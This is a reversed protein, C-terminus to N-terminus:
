SHAPLPWRWFCLLAALFVAALPWPMLYVLGRPTFLGMAGFMSWGIEVFDFSALLDDEIRGDLLRIKVAFAFMTAPVFGVATLMASLPGRLWNPWRATLWLVPLAVTLASLFAGEAIILALLMARDSLAEHRLVFVALGALSAMLAILGARVIAGLYTAESPQAL